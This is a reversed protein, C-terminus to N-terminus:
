SHTVTNALRHVTLQETEITKVNTWQIGHTMDSYATQPSNWRKM